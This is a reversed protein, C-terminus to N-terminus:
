PIDRMARYLRRVLARRDFFVTIFYIVFVLGVPVLVAFRAPQTRDLYIAAIILGAIFALFLLPLWILHVSAIVVTSGDALAKLYGRLEVMAGYRRSRYDYWIRKIAFRFVGPEIQEFSPEFGPVFSSEHMAKTDRIRLVCDKLDYPVVFEIPAATEKKRGPELPKGKPKEL